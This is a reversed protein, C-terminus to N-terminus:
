GAARPKPLTPLRDRAIQEGAQLDGDYRQVVPVGVAWRSRSQALMAQNFAAIYIAAEGSPLCGEAAPEIAVARPPVDSPGRPQWDRYEVIWIRFLGSIENSFKRM